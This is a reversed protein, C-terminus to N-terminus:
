DVVKNMNTTKAEVSILESISYIRSKKNPSWVKNKRTILDADSLKELSVLTQRAPIKLTSIIVDSSLPM